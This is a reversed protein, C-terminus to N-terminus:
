ASWRRRRRPTSVPFSAGLPLRGPAPSAAGRARRARRRGARRSSRPWARRPPWASPTTSAASPRTSSSTCCWIPARAAARAPGRAQHSAPRLPPDERSPARGGRPQRERHPERLAGPLRQRRRAAGPQRLADRELAGRPPERRAHRQAAVRFKGRLEFAARATQSGLNKIAQGEDLVVIDWDEEALEDADMRLVAYTMLTVDASPTSSASRARTSRPACARASASSRTSGTTSSARPACSSCAGACSASPRCRRASAWTTPWCRGSSPTACFRSGTSARSSTTACSPTSVRPCRSARSARSSVSSRRSAALEPPAPAELADCLAGLTSCRPPDSSRTAAARRSCIPSWIGTARSGTPRCRRGAAARSRSSTWATAGRACSPRPAPASSSRGGEGGGDDDPDLEFVVDYVDGDVVM